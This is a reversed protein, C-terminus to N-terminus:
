LEKIIGKLQSIYQKVSNNGIQTISLITRPKLNVFSKKVEIYKKELLKKMHSNLNGPTLGLAKQIQLFSLSSHIRLLVLIGLRVPEHVFTDLSQLLTKIDQNDSDM